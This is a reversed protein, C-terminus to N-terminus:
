GGSPTAPSVGSSRWRRAALCGRWVQNAYLLAEDGEARYIFFGGPMQDILKQIQVASQLLTMSEMDWTQCGPDQGGVTM